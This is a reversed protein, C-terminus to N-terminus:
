FGPSYTTKPNAIEPNNEQGDQSLESEPKKYHIAQYFLGSRLRNTDREKLRDILMAKPTLSEIVFQLAPDLNGLKEKRAYLWRYDIMTLESRRILDLLDFVRKYFGIEVDCNFMEDSLADYEDDDDGFAAIHAQELVHLNDFQGKLDNIFTKLANISSNLKPTLSRKIGFLMLTGM